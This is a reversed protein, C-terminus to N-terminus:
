INYWGQRNIALAISAQAFKDWKSKQTFVHYIKLLFVSQAQQTTQLVVSFQIDFTLYAISFFTIITIDATHMQMGPLTRAFEIVVNPGKGPAV